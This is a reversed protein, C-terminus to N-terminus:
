LRRDLAGAGSTQASQQTMVRARWAHQRLWGGFETGGLQCSACVRIYWAVVQELVCQDHEGTFHGVARRLV